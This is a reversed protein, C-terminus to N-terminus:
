IEDDFEKFQRYSGDKNKDRHGITNPKKDDPSQQRMMAKKIRHYEETFEKASDVSPVYKDNFHKTYWILVSHIEQQLKPNDQVFIEFDKAWLEKKIPDNTPIIKTFEEAWEKFVPDVQKKDAVFLFASFEGRAGFVNWLVNPLSKSEKPLYEKALRKLISKIENRKWAKTLLDPNISYKDAFTLLRKTPENAKNAAIPQGMLLREIIDYAQKYVKTKPDKHNITNPLSGWFSIIDHIHEAPVYTDKSVLPKTNNPKTNNYLGESDLPSQGGSDVSVQIPTSYIFNILNEINLQYYDKAPIGMRKTSLLGLDIFEKRALRLSYDSTNLEQRQQEYTLFFWGNFDEIRNSWYRYKDVYNSLIAANTLGLRQILSKNIMLFGHSGFADALLHEIRKRKVPLHSRKM